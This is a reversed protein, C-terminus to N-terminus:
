DILEITKVLVTNGAVLRCIYIGAKAKARRDNTGDWTVTYSGPNLTSKVLTTLRQGLVDYIALDVPATEGITYPITTEASFPNPYNDGLSTSWTNMGADKLSLGAVTTGLPEFVGSYGPLFDVSGITTESNDNTKWVKFSMTNGATFGDKLETAPDDNSVAFSLLNQNQNMFVTAGVFLEGDYVAIEDGPQLVSADPSSLTLYVNMHDYGNGEWTKKFHQPVGATTGTSKLGGSVPPNIALTGNAAVRIKYGEGSEFDGINDIWGMNLPMPEIAAGTEDQVKMLNNPNILGQLATMAAQPSSFPYSIINWGQSLPIDLPDSIPTGSITLTTNRNVRIKYGETRSWNHIDDIWGMNMPMPEIAAGAEDQIKVLSGEDILTQVLSMMAINEPVVDLSFINWGNTLSITQDAWSTGGIQYWCSAGSDFTHDGILYTVDCDSIERQESADWLKFTALHGTTYGDVAPTEPDDRSVRIEFYNTGNLVATLVGAGVCISGDFIGIEDGPQMDVGNIQALMAYFNMHDMGNGSWVPVFHEFDSFSRKWIGKFTGALINTGDTALTTVSMYPLGDNAMTWLAGDNKSIFVGNETGAILTGEIVVISYISSSTLGYNIPTWTTGNDSSLYVGSNLTGAFINSGKIALTRVNNGTMGNSADTWLEGNNTSKFVGGETSVFIHGSNIVFDTISTNTLGNNKSTWSQGNDNSVFIGDWTGAIVFSGASEMTTVMYNSIGNNAWTWSNGNDMSSYIGMGRYGAFLYSGNYVVTNVTSVPIGNNVPSWNNSFDASLFVGCDTGAFYRNEGFFIANVYIKPLGNNIATWSNGNITSLYIGGTTAIFIDNLHLAIANIGVGPLGNSIITWDNGNNTSMILGASSTAILKNENISLVPCGGPFDSTVTIWTDGDDNSRLVGGTGNTGAFIYSSSAAISSVQLDYGSIGNNKEVWTNGNNVSMYVGNMTGVFLSGESIAISNIKLGEGTLGNNMATWSSGNDTSLYIGGGYTGAYINSGSIALSKIFLGEGSLGNSIPAWNNGNDSSLFVGCVNTGAYINNGSITIATLQCYLGNNSASWNSGNDTSRYMGHYWAGAYVDNSTPDVALASIYAGYLGTGAEQWQTLGINHIILSSIITLFVKKM